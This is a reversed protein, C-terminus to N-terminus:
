YSLIKNALDRVDGPLKEFCMWFKSSAYHKM